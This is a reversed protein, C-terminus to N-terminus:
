IGLSARRVQRMGHRVIIEILCLGNEGNPICTRHCTRRMLVIRWLATWEAARFTM